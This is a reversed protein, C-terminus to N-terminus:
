MVIVAPKSGCANDVMTAFRDPGLIGNGVLIGKDYVGHSTFYIMCGGPARNSVDWLATAIASIKTEQADPAPDVSFEVMNAPTFGIAAFSKALDRRANDFVDAHTGDHAHDDGAVILVAWNAFQNASAPGAGLLVLGFLMGWFKKM